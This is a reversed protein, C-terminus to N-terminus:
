EEQIVITRAVIDMARQRKETFFIFLMDVPLFEFYYSLRRLFAEKYGIPLGSEMLVRLRLLRKGPTTGFRGELIPFYFLILGIAGLAAGITMLIFLGGVLLPIPDRDPLTQPVLNATAIGFIALLAAGVFIFLGDVVAAGLRMWFSAYHLEVESMFASAVEAPTGMRDFISKVDDGSELAEQIHAQLDSEIRHKEAPTVHINRLVQRIYVEIRDNANITKM